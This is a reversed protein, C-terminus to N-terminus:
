ELLEEVFASLQERNLPGMFRLVITGEANIFFTEPVGTAGYDTFIDGGKDPGNPYTVGFEELFKLADGRDDMVDIGVFLVGRGRYTQWGEELVPAEDRCARCWSAWINAVVPKGQMESLTFTGGSFLEITFDPATRNMRVSGTTDGGGALGVALVAVLTAAVAVVFGISLLRVVRNGKGPKEPAEIAVDQEV